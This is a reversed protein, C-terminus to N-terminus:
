QFMSTIDLCANKDFTPLGGLWSGTLEMKAPFHKKAIVKSCTTLNLNKPRMITKLNFFPV